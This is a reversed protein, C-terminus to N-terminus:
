FTVEVRFDIRMELLIRVCNAHDVVNMLSVLMFDLFHMELAIVIEGVILELRM